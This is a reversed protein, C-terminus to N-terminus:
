QGLLQTVCHRVQAIHAADAGLRRILMRVADHDTGKARLMARLADPTGVIRWVSEAAEGAPAATLAEVVEPIRGAGVLDAAATIEQGTAGSSV